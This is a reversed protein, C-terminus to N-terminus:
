ILNGVPLYLYEFIMQEHDLPRRNRLLAFV